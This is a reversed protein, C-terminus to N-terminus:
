NKIVFEYLMSGDECKIRKEEFKADQNIIWANKVIRLYSNGDFQKETVVFRGDTTIASLTLRGHLIDPCEVVKDIDAITPQRRSATRAFHLYLNQLFTAIALERETSDKFQISMDSRSNGIIIGNLLSDSFCDDGGFNLVNKAGFLNKAEIIRGVLTTEGAKWLKFRLSIESSNNECLKISDNSSDKLESMTILSAKWFSRMELNSIHFILISKPNVASFFDIESRNEWTASDAYPNVPINYGYVDGSMDLAIFKVFDPIKSIYPKLLKIYEKKFEQLTM